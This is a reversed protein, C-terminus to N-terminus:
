NLLTTYFGPAPILFPLHAFSKSNATGSRTPKPAPHPSKQCAGASSVPLLLKVRLLLPAILILAPADVPFVEVMVTVGDFENVPETVKVHATVVVRELGVLGAVHLRLGVEIEILPVVAPVDVRVAVVVDVVM